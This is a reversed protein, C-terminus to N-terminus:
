ASKVVLMQDDVDHNHFKLQSKQLKLNNFRHAQPWTYFRGVRIPPSEFNLNKSMHSELTSSHGILSNQPVIFHQLISHLCNDHIAFIVKIM